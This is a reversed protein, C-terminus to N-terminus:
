QPPEPQASHEVTAEAADNSASDSWPTQVSCKTSLSNPADIVITEIHRYASTDIYFYGEPSRQLVFDPAATTAASPSEAIASAPKSILENTLPDIYARQGLPASDVSGAQEVSTAALGNGTREQQRQIDEATAPRWQKRAEAAVSPQIGTAYVALVLLIARWRVM